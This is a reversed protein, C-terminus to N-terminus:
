GSSARFVLQDANEAEGSGLGFWERRTLDLEDLGEGILRRDGDLVRSQEVLHLRARAIKRLRQL